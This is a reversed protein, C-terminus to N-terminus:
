LEVRLSSTCMSDITCRVKDVLKPTMERLGRLPSTLFQAQTFNTPTSRLLDVEEVPFPASASAYAEIVEDIDETTFAHDNDKSTRLDIPRMRGLLQERVRLRWTIEILAHM